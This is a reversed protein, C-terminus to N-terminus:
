LSCGENFVQRLRVECVGIAEPRCRFCPFFNLVDAVGRWWTEQRWCFAATELGGAGIFLM